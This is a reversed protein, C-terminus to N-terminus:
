AVEGHPPPRDTPQAHRAVVAECVRRVMLAFSPGDGAPLEALVIRARVAGGSYHIAEIAYYTNLRHAVADSDERPCDFSFPQWGTGRLIATM